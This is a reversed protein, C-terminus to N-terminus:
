KTSNHVLITNTVASESFMWWPGPLSVPAVYYSCMQHQWDHQCPTKCVRISCTSWPVRCSFVSESGAMFENKDYANATPRYNSTTDLTTSIIPELHNESPYRLIPPILSFPWLAPSQCHPPSASNENRVKKHTKRTPTQRIQERSRTRSVHVIFSPNHNRLLHMVWQWKQTKKKLSWTCCLIHNISNVVFIVTISHFSFLHLVFSHSRTWFSLIVRFFNTACILDLPTTYSFFM